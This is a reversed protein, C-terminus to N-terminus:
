EEMVEDLSSCISLHSILKTYSYPVSILSVFPNYINPFFAGINLLVVYM